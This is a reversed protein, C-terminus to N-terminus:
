KQPVTKWILGEMTRVHSFYQQLTFDKDIAKQYFDKLNQVGLNKSYQGQLYLLTSLATPIVLM